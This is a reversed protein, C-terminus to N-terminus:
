QPRHQQGPDRQVRFQHVAHLRLVLLERHEDVPDLIQQWPPPDGAVRDRTAFQGTDEALRGRQQVLVESLLFGLDQRQDGFVHCRGFPLREAVAAHVGQRLVARREDEEAQEQLVRGVVLAGREQFQHRRRDAPAPM